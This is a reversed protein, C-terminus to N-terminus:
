VMSAEGYREYLCTRNSLATLWSMVDAVQEKLDWIEGIPAKSAFLHHHVSIGLLRLLSSEEVGDWVSDLLGMSHMM